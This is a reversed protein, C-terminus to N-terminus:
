ENHASNNIWSQVRRHHQVWTRRDDLAELGVERLLRRRWELIYEWSDRVGVGVGREELERLAKRLTVAAISFKARLDAQLSKTVQVVLLVDSVRKERLRVVEDYFENVQVRMEELATFGSKRRLERLSENATRTEGKLQRLQERLARVRGREHAIRPGAPTRDLLVADMEADKRVLQADRFQLAIRLQRTAKQARLLRLKLRRVDEQDAPPNTRGPITPVKRLLPASITDVSQRRLKLPRKPTRLLADLKQDQSQM